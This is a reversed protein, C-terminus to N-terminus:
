SASTVIAPRQMSLTLDRWANAALLASVVARTAPSRNLTYFHIGPAGGALLEFCQLTAYAVGLDEIAEPEGIRERLAALLKPPISAGCMATMRAIQEYNTIPMIGPIIPTRIGVARARRVFDFYKTNDFFLQTILFDAGEEVKTLLNALDSRADVSEPHTEPYCAGGICFNFESVLMRTLDSAYAFGGPAITFTANGKPPDGRLALVNEIGSEALGTFLERLEARSSGVCTVHAMVDLGIDRAIRKALEVTRARTSGGAGYTISVFAPRLNRLTEITALLAAAGEDNRPPFFEFSFFPRLSALSESIRM